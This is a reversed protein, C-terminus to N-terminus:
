LDFRKLYLDCCVMEIEPCNTFSYLVVVCKLYNHCISSKDRNKAVEKVELVTVIRLRLDLKEQQLRLRM